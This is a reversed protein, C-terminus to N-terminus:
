KDAFEPTFAVAMNEPISVGVWIGKSKSVDITLAQELSLAKETEDMWVRVKPRLGNPTEDSMEGDIYVKANGILTVRETKPTEVSFSFWALVEDNKWTDPGFARLKTIKKFTPIPKGRKARRSKDVTLGDGLSGALLVGMAGSLGALEAGKAHLGLSVQGAVVQEMEQKIRKIAVNVWTKKIRDAMHKPVWDDHAPPEAEVFAQEVESEDSCLFLGGWEAGPPLLNGLLYKVVLEAPRMLAVHHAADPFMGDNKDHFGSIRAGKVNKHVALLGLHAKPRQCDISIADGSKLARMSTEFSGPPPM